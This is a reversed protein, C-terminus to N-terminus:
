IQSKYDQKITKNYFAKFFYKYTTKNYVIDYNIVSNYNWICRIYHNIIYFESYNFTPQFLKSDIPQHYEFVININEM